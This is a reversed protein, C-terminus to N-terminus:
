DRSNRELVIASARGRIGRVLRERGHQALAHSGRRVDNFQAEVGPVDGARLTPVGGEAIALRIAPEELYELVPM